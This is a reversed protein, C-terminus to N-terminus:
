PLVLLFCVRYKRIKLTQVLLLTAPKSRLAGKESWSPRIETLQSKWAAHLTFACDEPWEQLNPRALWSFLLMTMWEIVDNDCILTSLILKFWPWAGHVETTSHAADKYSRKKTTVVDVVWRGIGALMSQNQTEKTKTRQEPGPTMLNISLDPLLVLPHQSHAVLCTPSMHGWESVGVCASVGHPDREEKTGFNKRAEGCTYQSRFFIQALIDINFKERHSRLRLDDKFHCYCFSSSIVRKM